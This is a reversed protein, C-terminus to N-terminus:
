GNRNEDNTEKRPRGVRVGRSWAVAEDRDVHHVGSIVVSKLSGSRIADRVTTRARGTLRAVHTITLLTSVNM